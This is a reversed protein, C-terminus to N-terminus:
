KIQLLQLYRDSGVNRGTVTVGITHGELEDGMNLLAAIAAAGSPEVIQQHNDMMFGMAKIVSEETITIFRDVVKQIIPFTITEPEIYGSLGEAVSPKLEVPITKGASFWQALTPSNGMQVGWVQIEPNMAKMVSGIGSILGGGGACVLVIDLEPLDQIMELGVTGGGAIMGLNNYASVFVAGEEESASMANQRATEITKCTIVEAGYDHLRQIKTEDTDEPLYIKAPIDLKGAAYALGLGHNGATPAVVGKKRQDPPLTMLYNFAGRPKFSGTKQQSELKLYIDAKCNRSLIESYELPTHFIFPRIRKQTQFFDQLSLM